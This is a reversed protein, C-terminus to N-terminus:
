ILGQCLAQDCCSKFNEEYVKLLLAGPARAKAASNKYLIFFWLGFCIDRAGPARRLDRAM